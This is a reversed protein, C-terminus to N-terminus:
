PTLRLPATESLQRITIRKVIAWAKSSEGESLTRLAPDINVKHWIRARPVKPVNVGLEDGERKRPSVSILAEFAPVAVNDREVLNTLVDCGARPGPSDYLAIPSSRAIM